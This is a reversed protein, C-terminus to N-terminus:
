DLLFGLNINNSAVHREKRVTPVGRVPVPARVLAIEKECEEYQRAVHQIRIDLRQRTCEIKEALREM